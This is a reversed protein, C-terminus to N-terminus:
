PSHAGKGADLQMAAGILTVLAEPAFGAPIEITIGNALSLRASYSQCRPESAQLPGVPLVSARIFSLESRQDAVCTAAQDSLVGLAKLKNKWSYFQQADFGHRDAYERMSLDSSACGKIHDFWFQQQKSLRNNRMM